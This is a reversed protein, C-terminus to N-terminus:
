LVVIHCFVGYSRVKQLPWISYGYTAAFGGFPGVLAEEDDSAFDGRGGLLASTTISLINHSHGCTAKLSLGHFM